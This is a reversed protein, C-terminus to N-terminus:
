KYSIIDYDMWYYIRFGIRLVNVVNQGIHLYASHSHEQKV